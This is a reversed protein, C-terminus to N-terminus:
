SPARTTTGSLACRPMDPSATFVPPTTTTSGRCSLFWAPLPWRRGPGTSPMYRPPPTAPTPTYKPSWRRWGPRSRAVPNPDPHESAGHLYDLAASFGHEAAPIFAVHALAAAAQLHDDAERAAELALSYYARGAMSDQLDFFSLRGALTGVRARNALLRRREAPGPDQRLLDGLTSLHAVVPTMLAAPATSHYLTQYRDALYEMDRVKDSTPKGSRSRRASETVSPLVTVAPMIGMLKLVARRQMGDDKWADFMRPALIGGAAGLQDLIAAAGGLADVLSRETVASSAPM